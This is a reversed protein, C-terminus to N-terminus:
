HASGGTDLAGRAGDGFYEHWWLALNLLTWSHDIRERDIYTRAEAPDILGSERCFSAIARDGGRNMIEQTWDVMPMGFGRKPRDIVEDPVIGRVARKLIAKTIGGRTKAESPISMALTVFEHDLFPVRGELGSAMAMKDVRM